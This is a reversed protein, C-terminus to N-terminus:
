FNFYRLLSWYARPTSEEAALFLEPYRVPVDM